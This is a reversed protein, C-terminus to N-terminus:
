GMLIWIKELNIHTQFSKEIDCLFYTAEIGSLSGEDLDLTDPLLSRLGRGLRDNQNKM